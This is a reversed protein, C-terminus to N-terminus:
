PLGPDGGRGKGTPYSVCRYQVQKVSEDRCRVQMQGGPDVKEGRILRLIPCDESSDATSKAQCELIEHVSQGELLPPGWGLFIKAQLNLTVIKGQSDIILASSPLADILLQIIAREASESSYSFTSHALLDM